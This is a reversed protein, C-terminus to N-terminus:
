HDTDCSTGNCSRVCLVFSYRRRDLLIHGIQNHPKGGSTWTLKHLNRHLFMISTIKIVLNKSTIYYCVFYFLFATCYSLRNITPKGGRYAPNADPCCTPKHHVFRCQPLNEGLVETGRGIM